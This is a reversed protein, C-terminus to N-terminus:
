ASRVIVAVGPGGLRKVERETTVLHFRGWSLRDKADSAIIGASRLGDVLSKCAAIANDVDKPHYGGCDRYARYEIDIVAREIPVFGM